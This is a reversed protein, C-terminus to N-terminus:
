VVAHYSTLIYDAAAPGKMRLKYRPHIRHRMAGWFIHESERPTQSVYCWSTYLGYFADRDLTSDSEPDRYTAERLFQDFQSHAM